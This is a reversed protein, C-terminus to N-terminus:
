IVGLDRLHDLDADNLDLWDSYVERTHEGLRPGAHRIRGPTRSLKPVVNQMRVTGLDSDPVAVINERERFHPDEFVGRVDYIPAVAAGADNLISLVDTSSHEAIWDGFIKDLLASNLTRARNDVSRPDDILDPRDIARCAREFVSQSSCSMAIWEDDRTKFANRPSAFPLRSGLREAVIGLQDYDIFHHGLMTLMPEYIGLDISQGVGSSNDRDHLAVMVAYAGCLGTVADALGFSPLTPPGDSQGTVHAYGSMAEALTGFGARPSYPGTQGFASVSLMILRPNLPALSEFDLGWRKLTGPRFNEVLVDAKAVMRKLLAQGEPAHLDLTVSRKNRAVVKWFLPVDDKHSGWSRMMDGSPHEVKIVDAGFDALWMSAMPAAMFSAIDLVKVDALPAARDTNV